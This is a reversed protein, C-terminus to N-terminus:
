PADRRYLQKGLFLTVPGSDALIEGYVKFDDGKGKVFLKSKSSLQAVDVAGGLPSVAYTVNAGFNVKLDWDVREIFDDPNRNRTKPPTQMRGEQLIIDGRLAPQDKTGEFRMTGKAQGKYLKPLGDVRIWTPAAMTVSYTGPQFGALSAEGSVLVNAGAADNLTATLRAKRKLFELRGETLRLESFGTPPTFNGPAVILAGEIEPDEPTGAITIRGLANADSSEVFALPKLYGLQLKEISLDLDLKREPFFTVSGTGRARLQGQQELRLSTLAFSRGPSGAGKAEFLDYPFGGFAGDTIALRGSLPAEAGANWQFDAEAMGPLAGAGLAILIPTAPLRHVEATMREPADPFPWTGAFKLQAGDPGRLVLWKGGSREDLEIRLVGADHSVTGLAKWASSAPSSLQWRGPAVAFDVAVDPAAAANLSLGALVLSGAGRGDTLRLSLTSRGCACEALGAPVRRWAFTADLVRTAGTATYRSPFVEFEGAAGALKGEFEVGGGTTKLRVSGDGILQHRLKLAKLTVWGNVAAGDPSKALELGRADIAGDVDPLARLADFRRLLPLWSAMSRETGTVALAYAPLAGDAPLATWGRLNLEGRPWTLALSLNAHDAPGKLTVTGSCTDAPAPLELAACLPGLPVDGGSFSLAVGKNTREWSAALVDDGWGAHAAFSGDERWAADLDLDPYAAGDLRLAALRATVKREQPTQRATLEAHADLPLAGIRLFSINLRADGEWGGPTFAFAGSGDAAGAPGKFSLRTLKMAGARQDLTFALDGLRRGDRELGRVEGSGTVIPKGTLDAVELAGHFAGGISRIADPVPFAQWVSALPLGGGELRGSAPGGDFPLKLTITTVTFVKVPDLELARRSVRVTGTVPADLKGVLLRTGGVNAALAPDALPGTVKAAANLRLVLQRTAESRTDLYLSALSAGTLAVKADLRHPPAAGATGTIGLKAGSTATGTAALEWAGGKRRARLKLSWLGDSTAPDWAPEGRRIRLPGAFGPLLPDSPKLSLTLDGSDERTRYDGALEVAGAATAAKVGALAIRSGRGTITAVGEFTAAEAGAWGADVLKATVTIVPDAAPGKATIRCAGRGRADRAVRSLDLSECAAALDLAPRDFGTVAGTLRWGTGSVTLALDDMTWKTGTARLRGRVGHLPFPWGAGALSADAPDLTGDAKTLRWAGASKAFRLDLDCSVAGATVRVPLELPALWPALPAAALRKWDLAVDLTDPGSTVSVGTGRRPSEPSTCRVVVELRGGDATRVSATLDTLALVAGSAGGARLLVRGDTADLTVGPPLPLSPAAPPPKGHVPRSPVLWAPPWALVVQPRVLRASRLAGLFDGHGRWLDRLSFTLRLEKAAISDPDDLTGAAVDYLVLTRLGALDLDRFTIRPKTDALAREIGTRLAALVVPRWWWLYASLGAAAALGAAIGLWRWRRTTM